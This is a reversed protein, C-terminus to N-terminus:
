FPVDELDDNYNFLNVEEKKVKGCKSNGTFPYIVKEAPKYIIPQFDYEPKVTMDPNALLNEGWTIADKFWEPWLSPKQLYVRNVQEDIIYCNHAAYGNALFTCTSTQMVAIERIGGDEIAEIDENVLMSQLSQNAGSNTFKNLLRNPRIQGLLRLVESFNGLLSIGRMDKGTTKFESYNFNFESLINKIKELVFGEKQSISIRPVFRNREGQHLSLCGEGDMIGSLWGANYSNSEKWTPMLKIISWYKSFGNRKHLKKLNSAEVWKAVGKTGRVLWKHNPTCFIDENNKFIIRLTKAKTFKIEEVIGFKWRRFPSKTWNVRACKKPAGKDEDFAFLKDGVKISGIEVWRLDNTLTKVDPTVCVCSDDKSRMGRGCSQLVSLMMQASYWLKGINSSYVRQSVVRDGLSLFPAKAIIVFQCKDGDLSLGRELSPSILVSDDNREIFADVVEQRDSSTHFLLRNSKVGDFISQGLKFSVCHILGKQGPHWSLIRNIGKLLKPIETDTTKATMSCVPWINIPRKEIPFTSPIAKYDVDAIDIGLTKCLVPIPLFSASMLLFKDSHKWLFTEALDPTIWLPRFTTVAQRSGVRPTEEILWDRDVNNIFIVCREILHKFYEREKVKKFQWDEEIKDFRSIEDDLIKHVQESRYLAAQGFEKWNSVGDKSTATKSTPKDIGLRYLARETFSLSIHNVFTGELSDAEDIITFPSGSFIGVYNIETLFYSYNLIRLNSKAAARKAITYQCPVECPNKKTALCQDCTKTYDAACPYNGRGWLNKAEPFDSLLQSQLLKTGCLYNAEHAMVGCVMGLVSKGFGTPCEMIVFKKESENVFEVAEKQYERWNFQKFKSLMGKAKDATLNNHTYIGKTALFEDIEDETTFTVLEPFRKM